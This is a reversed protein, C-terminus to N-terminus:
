VNRTVEKSITLTGELVRECIDVGQYVEIDYVGSAINGISSSQDPTANIHVINNDPNTDADFPVITCNFEILVKSTPVYDKRMQGRASYGILSMPITKADDEFVKVDIDWTTGQKGILSVTGDSNATATIM